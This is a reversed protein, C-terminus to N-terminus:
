NNLEPTLSKTVRQQISWDANPYQASWINTSIHKKINKTFFASLSLCLMFISALNQVWISTSPKKTLLCMNEGNFHHKKRPIFCLVLTGTCFFTKHQGYFYYIIWSAEEEDTWRSRCTECASQIEVYSTTEMIWIKARELIGVASRKPALSRHLSCFWPAGKWIIKKNQLKFYHM